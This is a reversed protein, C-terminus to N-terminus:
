LNKEIWKLIKGASNIVEEADKKSYSKSLDPYRTDIYSPNIKSCLVIIEKPANIKRALLVLDHIRLLKKYKKIYLSKLAKESAQQAQFCAWGYNKSKFSDKAVKLDTKARELWRKIEEKM